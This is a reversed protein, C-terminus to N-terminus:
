QKIKVNILEVVVQWYLQAYDRYITSDIWKKRNADYWQPINGFKIRYVSAVGDILYYYYDNFAKKNMTKRRKRSKM